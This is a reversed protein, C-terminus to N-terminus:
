HQAVLAELAVVVVAVFVVSALTTNPQTRTNKNTCVLRNETTPKKYLKWYFYDVNM